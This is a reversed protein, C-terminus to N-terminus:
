FQCQLMLSIFCVFMFICRLRTSQPNRWYSPPSYYFTWMLLSCASLSQTPTWMSSIFNYFNRILSISSTTQQKLTFLLQASAGKSLWLALWHELLWEPLHLLASHPESVASQGVRGLCHCTMPFNIINQKIKKEGVPSSKKKIHSSSLLEEGAWKSKM